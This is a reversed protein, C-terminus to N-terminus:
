TNIVSYFDMNKPFLQAALQFSSMVRAFISQLCLSIQYISMMGVILKFRANGVCVYTQRSNICQPINKIISLQITIIAGKKTTNTQFRFYRFLRLKQIKTRFFKLLKPELCDLNWYWLKLNRSFSVFAFLGKFVKYWFGPISFYSGFSLQWFRYRPVVPVLAETGFSPSFQFILVSVVKKM